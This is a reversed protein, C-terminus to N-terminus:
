FCEGRGHAAGTKPQHYMNNAPSRAGLLELVDAGTVTTVLATRHAFFVQKHM